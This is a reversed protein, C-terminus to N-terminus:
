RIPIELHSKNPDSSFVCHILTEDEEPTSDLFSNLAPSIPGPKIIGTLFFEDITKKAQAITLEGAFIVEGANTRSLTFDQGGVDTLKMQWAGGGFLTTERKWSVGRESYTTWGSTEPDRGSSKKLTTVAGRDILSALFASGVERAVQQKVYQLIGVFEHELETKPDEATM